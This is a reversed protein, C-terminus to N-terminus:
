EKIVLPEYQSTRLSIIQDRTYGYLAYKGDPSLEIPLMDIDKVIVKRKGSKLNVSILDFLSGSESPQYTYFLQHQDDYGYEAPSLSSYESFLPLTFSRLKESSSVDSFIYTGNKSDASTKVVLRVNNFVDLLVAQDAIKKERGDAMDYSYVPAPKQRDQNNWKLFEFSDPSTWHIFAAQVIDRKIKAEKANLLYSEYNWDKTFATVYLLYPDHENWDVQLEHTRFGRSFLEDGQVNMLTLKIESGDGATQILMMGKERNLELSILRKDTKYITEGTGKFIDYSRIESGAVPHTRTYLITEHDLWGAAEDFHRDKLAAVKKEEVVEDNKRKKESHEQHVNESGGIHFPTCAASLGTMVAAIICLSVRLGAM